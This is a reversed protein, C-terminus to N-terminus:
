PVFLFRRYIEGFVCFFFWLFFLSLFAVGVVPFLNCALCSARADLDVETGCAPFSRARTPSQGGRGWM